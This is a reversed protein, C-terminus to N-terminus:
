GAKREFYFDVQPKMTGRHPHTRLLIEVVQRCYSPYDVACSQIEPDQQIVILRRHMLTIMTRFGMNKNEYKDRIYEEVIHKSRVRGDEPM